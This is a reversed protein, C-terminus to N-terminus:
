RAGRAVRASCPRPLSPLPSLAPMQTLLNAGLLRLLAAQVKSCLLVATLGSAPLGRAREGTDCAVACSGLWNTITVSTTAVFLGRQVLQLAPFCTCVLETPPFNPTELELLAAAPGAACHLLQCRQRVVVTTLNDGTRMSNAAPIQELNRASPTLTLLLWGFCPATASGFHVCRARQPRRGAALAAACLSVSERMGQLCHLVEDGALSALASVIPANREPHGEPFLKPNLPVVPGPALSTAHVPRHVPPSPPGARCCTDWANTLLRQM